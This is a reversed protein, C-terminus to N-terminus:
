FESRRFKAVVPLLRVVYVTMVVAAEVAVVACAYVVSLHTPSERRARYYIKWVSIIFYYVASLVAIESDHISIDTESLLTGVTLHLARKTRQISKSIDM